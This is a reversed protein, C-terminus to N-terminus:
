KLNMYSLDELLNELDEEHEVEDTLIQLAMNYTIQDKDKTEDIIKEYVDIACREGKINQEILKKVFPDDPSSYGCNTHTYWDKPNSISAGGLQIIRDSIMQAHKLEDTAHETLEAIVSKAMPGKAIQAGLWYQYYALWEDSFARNLIKVLEVPNMKIIKTGEKGM